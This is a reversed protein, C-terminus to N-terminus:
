RDHSEEGRTLAGALLVEVEDDDRQYKVIGHAEELAKRYHDCQAQLRAYCRQWALVGEGGDPTEVREKLNDSNSM